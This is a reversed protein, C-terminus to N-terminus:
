SGKDWCSDFAEADFAGDVANTGGWDDDYDNDYYGMMDDHAIDDEWRDFMDEMSYGRSETSGGWPGLKKTDSQPDYEPSHAEVVREASENMAKALWDGEMRALYLTHLDPLHMVDNTCYQITKPAMPRVDFINADMINKVDQKTRLWREREMFGLNLDFQVCKDLGRVYKRDGIRSANELLQIDTVGALGVNYLAWLADADNRVDWLYKPITPDELPTTTFASPGLTLIDIIRVSRSPHILITILSITGHRSLNNGELDIYFSDSPSISSLFASLETISSILTTPTSASTNM